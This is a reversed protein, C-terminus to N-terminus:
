LLMNDVVGLMCEDVYADLMKIVVYMSHQSYHAFRKFEVQEMTIVLNFLFWICVICIQVQHKIYETRGCLLMDHLHFTSASTYHFLIEVAIWKM